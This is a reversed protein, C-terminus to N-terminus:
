LRGTRNHWVREEHSAVSQLNGEQPTDEGKTNAKGSYMM